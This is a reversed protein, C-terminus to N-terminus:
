IEVKWDVFKLERSLCSLNDLYDLWFTMDDTLFVATYLWIEWLSLSFTLENLDKFSKFLIHVYISQIEDLYVKALYIHFIRLFDLNIMNFSFYILTLQSNVDWSLVCVDSLFVTLNLKWEQCTKNILDNKVWIRYSAM